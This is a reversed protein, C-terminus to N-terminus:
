GKPKKEAFNSNNSIFLDVAECVQPYDYLLTEVKERSFKGFEKPLGWGTVAYSLMSAMFRAQAEDDYKGSETREAAERLAHIKGNRYQDSHASKVMLYCEKGDDSDIILKKAVNADDRKILNKM